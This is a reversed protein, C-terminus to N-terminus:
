SWNSLQEESADKFDMLALTNYVWAANYHYSFTNFAERLSGGGEIKSTAVGIGKSIGIAAVPLGYRYITAVGDRQEIVEDKYSTDYVHTEPIKIPCEDVGCPKGYEVLSVEVTEVSEGREGRRVPKTFKFEIIPVILLEFDKAEEIYSKCSEQSGEFLVAHQGDDFVSSLMRECSRKWVQCQDIEIKELNYRNMTPGLPRVYVPSPLSEINNSPNLLLLVKAWEETEPNYKLVTIMPTSWYSYFLDGLEVEYPDACWGRINPKYTQLEESDRISRNPDLGDFKLLPGREKKGYSLNVKPVRSVWKESKSGSYIIATPCFPYMVKNRWTWDNRGQKWSPKKLETDILFPYESGEDWWSMHNHIGLHNYVATRDNETRPKIDLVQILGKITKPEKGFYKREM